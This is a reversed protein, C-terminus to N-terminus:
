QRDISRDKPLISFLVYHKKKKERERKGRRKRWTQMSAVNISLVLSHVIKRERQREKERTRWFLDVCVFVCVYMCRSSSFFVVVVVFSKNMMMREDLPSYTWKLWGVSMNMWIKNKTSQLGHDIVINLKSDYLNEEMIQLLLLFADTRKETAGESLWFSWISWFLSHTSSSLSRRNILRKKYTYICMSSLLCRLVTRSLM